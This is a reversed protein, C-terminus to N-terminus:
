LLQDDLKHLEALLRERVERAYPNENEITLFLDWSDGGLNKKIDLLFQYAPTKQEVDPIDMHNLARGVFHTIGQVYAMQKDHEEPTRIMVNLGLKNGFLEVLQDTKTSRVPCIVLNLGAIGNKGSQPGFLPHTGIIQVEEHLYQRMLSIPKVKVSSVDMVLTGPKILHGIEKLLEELYQVPVGLVIRPKALVEELTGYRVHLRTAEGRIDVKDYVTIDYYPRLYPIIFRGFNGFGVFGLEGLQSM